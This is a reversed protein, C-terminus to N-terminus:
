PLPGPVAVVQKPKRQILLLGSAAILVLGSIALWDAYEAFFLAGLIIAWLLQSYQAPAVRNAPALRTALALLVQGGGAMLGCFIVLVWENFTPWQWGQWIVLPIAVVVNVLNLMAYITVPKEVSGLFRLLVLTTGICIAAGFAWVHGIELDRFGPRMVVLVGLLGIGVSSWRRWGVQEGLFLISLVLAVIPSLFIIAYVEALPLSTFALVAFIGALTSILSRAILMKPRQMVLVERWRVARTKVVPVLLFGFTAILLSVQFPSLRTGIAKVSADALSFMLYTIFAFVIARAVDAPQPDNSTM